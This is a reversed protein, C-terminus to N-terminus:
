TKPASSRGAATRDIRSPVEAQAMLSFLREADSGSAILQGNERLRLERLTGGPEEHGFEGMCSLLCDLRYGDLGAIVPAFCLYWREKHFFLALETLLVEPHRLIAKGASLADDLNRFVFIYPETKEGRREKGKGRLTDSSRRGPLRTVCISFGGGRHPLTEILLRSDGPDFGTQRCAASILGSVAERGGSALEETTVLIKLRRMSVVSARM